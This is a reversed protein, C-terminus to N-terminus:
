QFYKGTWWLDKAGKIANCTGTVDTAGNADKSADMLYTVAAKEIKTACTNEKYLQITMIRKAAAAEPPCSAKYYYDKGNFTKTKCAQLGDDSAGVLKENFAATNASDENGSSCDNKKWVDFHVHYCKTDVTPAGSVAAMLAAVIAFKM